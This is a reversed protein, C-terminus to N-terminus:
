LLNIVMANAACTSAYTTVLNVAGTVGQQGNLAQSIASNGASCSGAAIGSLCYNNNISYPQGNATVSGSVNLGCTGTGGGSGTGSISLTDGNFTYSINTGPNAARYANSFTGSFSTWQAASFSSNVLTPLTVNEFQMYKSLAALVKGYANTSGTVVPTTALDDASLKFQTALNTAYTKFTSSSIASGTNPFANTFAMTTLPTVIGTVTGGSAALVSKLPAALATSVSTAEDTYTGGSIEVVVDGIYDVAVSYAGGAGTTTEKLLTGDSAKTVRVKAGSVPGKVASGSITTTTTTAATGGSSGGGGCGAVALAIAATISALCQTHIRM